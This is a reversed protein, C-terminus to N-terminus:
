TNGYGEIMVSEILADPGRLLRVDFKGAREVILDLEVDTNPLAFKGPTNPQSVALLGGFTHRIENANIIAAL